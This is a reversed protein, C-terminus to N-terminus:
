IGELTQVLKGLIRPEFDGKVEIRYRDKVVVTLPDQKPHIPVRIPIPVLSIESLEKSSTSTSIAKGKWRVFTSRKLEHKLCYETCNLNSEKWREVHDYWFQRKEKRTLRNKNKTM